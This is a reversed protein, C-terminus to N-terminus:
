QLPHLNMNCFLICCEANATYRVKYEQLLGKPLKSGLMRCQKYADGQKDGSSHRSNSPGSASPITESAAHLTDSSRGVSRRSQALKMLTSSGGALAVEAQVHSIEVPLDDVQLQWAHPPTIISVYVQCTYPCSPGPEALTWAGLRLMDEPVVGTNLYETIQSCLEDLDNPVGGNVVRPSREQSSSNDAPETVNSCFVVYGTSPCDFHTCLAERLMEHTVPQSFRRTYRALSSFDMIKADKANGNVPRLTLLVAHRMAM